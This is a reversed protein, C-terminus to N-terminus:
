PVSRPAAASISAEKEPVVDKLQARTFSCSCVPLLVAFTEGSSMATMPAMPSSRATLPLPPRLSLGAPSEPGPIQDLESPRGEGDSAVGVDVTEHRNRTLAAPSFQGCIEQRLEVRLQLSHTVAHAGPVLERLILEVDGLPSGRRLIQGSLDEEEM